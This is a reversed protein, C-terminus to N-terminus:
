SANKSAEVREAWELCRDLFRATNQKKIEVDVSDRNFTRLIAERASRRDSASAIDDFPSVVATRYNSRGKLPVDHFCVHDQLDTERLLHAASPMLWVIAGDAANMQQAAEDVAPGVIFNEALTFEGLAMTGRYALPVPSSAAYKMIGSALYAALLVCALANGDHVGDDFCAVVITDSLFLLQRGQARGPTNDYPLSHFRTPLPLSFSKAFIRSDAQLSAM